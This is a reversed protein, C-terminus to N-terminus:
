LARSPLQFSPATEELRGEMGAELCSDLPQREGDREEWSVTVRRAALPSVPGIQRAEQIRGQATM